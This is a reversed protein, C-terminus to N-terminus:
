RTFSGKQEEEKVLFIEIKTPEIDYNIEQLKKLMNSYFNDYIIFTMSKESLDFYLIIRWKKVVQMM